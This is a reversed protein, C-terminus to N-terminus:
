SISPGGPNSGIQAVWKVNNTDGDMPLPFLGPCEWQGSVANAPGFSSVYTWDKLNKSTYILLMHDNPLSVVMVWHEEAAYWFVFPDRFNQLSDATVYQEPPTHIVPNQADYTTWTMGDDLSYAISQSQQGNLVTKGSPLSMNQAYSSTYIAVLAPNARTGFGSTNDTDVVASGSFFYEEVNGDEDKRVELAIPQQTWHLLDTSTAHGWSINGWTTGGLNYQFYLHYVGKHYVMGNPDNMWNKKPSFHYQNRYQEKYAEAACLMSLALFLIIKWTFTLCFM